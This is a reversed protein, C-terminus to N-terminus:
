APPSKQAYAQDMSRGELYRALVQIQDQGPGAVPTQVHPGIEKLFEQIEPRALYDRLMDAFPRGKWDIFEVYEDRYIFKCWQTAGVAEHAQDLQKKYKKLLRACEAQTGPMVPITFAIRPM